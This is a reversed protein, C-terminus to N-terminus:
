IIPAAPDPHTMSMSADMLILPWFCTSNRAWRPAVITTPTITSTGAIRRVGMRFVLRIYASKTSDTTPLKVVINCM